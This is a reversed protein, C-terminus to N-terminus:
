FCNIVLSDSLNSGDLTRITLTVLRRAYFVVEGNATVEAFVKVEGNSDTYTNNSLTFSIKEPHTANDPGTIYDVFVSNNDADQEDFKITLWKDGNYIQDYSTIEIKNMYFLNSDYESDAGMGTGYALAVGEGSKECGGLICVFVLALALALVISIRKM